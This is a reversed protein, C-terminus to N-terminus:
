MGVDLSRGPKLGKTMAVLFGNPATNFMPNPATLIRNWREIEARDGITRLKAITDSAEQASKGQRRLEESYLRYVVDDESRHVEAPQQTIWSRWAEYIRIEEPSATPGLPSQQQAAAGEALALAGAFVALLVAAVFSAVPQHNRSSMLLRRAIRVPTSSGESDIHDFREFYTAVRERM